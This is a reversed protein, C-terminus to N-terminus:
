FPWFLQPVTTPETPLGTMKSVHLGPCFLYNLASLWKIMDDITGHIFMVWLILKHLGDINWIANYYHVPVADCFAMMAGSHMGL